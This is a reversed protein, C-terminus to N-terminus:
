MIIISRLFIMVRIDCLETKLLAIGAHQCIIITSTFFVSLILVLSTCYTLFTSQQLPLKCSVAHSWELLAPNGVIAKRRPSSLMDSQPIQRSFADDSATTSLAPAIYDYRKLTASFYVYELVAGLVYSEVNVFPYTRPYSVLM